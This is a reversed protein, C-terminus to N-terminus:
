ESNFDGRLFMDVTNWATEWEGDNMCDLLSRYNGLAPLNVHIFQNASFNSMGNDVLHDVMSQVTDKTTTRAFIERKM